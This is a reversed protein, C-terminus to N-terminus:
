PLARRHEWLPCRHCPAKLACLDLHTHPPYGAHAAVRCFLIDWVFPCWWLVVHVQLICSYIYVFIRIRQAPSESWASVIVFRSVYLARSNVAATGCLSILVRCGADAFNAASARLQRAFIPLQLHRSKATSTGHILAGGLCQRTSAFLKVNQVALLSLCDM